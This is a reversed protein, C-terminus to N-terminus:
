PRERRAVRFRVVRQVDLSDRTVAWVTDGRFVPAPSTRFEDPTRAMGLYRGDPEFVDYVTPERYRTQPRNTRQEEERAETESRWAYGPQSLQIWLRGDQGV